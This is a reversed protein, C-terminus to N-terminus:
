WGRGILEKKSTEFVTYSIAVAPVAKLMNPVLGAYLGRVGEGRVTQRLCDLLGTYEPRVAPALGYEIRVRPSRGGMGAVQAVASSTAGCGLLSLVPLEGGGRRRICREKLTSYLALDVASFPVIGVLSAALGKYLAPPGEHKVTARVCAAISDFQGQKAVAMRTKAVEMPYIALCSAFGAAAGAFLREQLSPCRPDRCIRVKVADYTWFRIASEPMVKICNAGNGQWFSAPGGARLIERLGNRVGDLAMPRRVGMPPGVQMLTKLRDLPATATRSAIGAVAGAILVVAPNPLMEASLETASQIEAGLECPAALLALPAAPEALPTAPRAPTAPPLRDRESISRALHRSEARSLDRMENHLEPFKAQMELFGLSGSHAADAIEFMQTVSAKSWPLQLLARAQLLEGLTVREGHPDQRPM